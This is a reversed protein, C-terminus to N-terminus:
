SGMDADRRNGDQVYVGDEEPQCPEDCLTPCHGILHEELGHCPKLMGIRFGNEGHEALV